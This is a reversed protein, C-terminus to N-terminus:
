FFKWVIREDTVSNGLFDYAVIKITHRFFSLKSWNWLCPQCFTMNQLNNGLYFEVRQVSSAHSVNGLVELPGFALTTVFPLIRHNKVYLSYARPSRIEVAIPTTGVTIRQLTSYDGWGRATNHGRVRYYYTGNLQGQIHYSSESLSESLITVSGVHAVPSIDDIYFGALNKRDNTTYRFRIFLSDGVYADLPYTKHTWNMDVGNFTDLLDYSRGDRSVEVMAYDKNREISYWCWFSLTMGEVIPVPYASTLTSVDNTKNRSMYSHESSHSRSVNVSFGDSIWWGTSSEADDTWLTVNSLEDLQFVDTDALPNQEDWTITYDGDEDYNMEQFEPPLVRPVVACIGDAEELLYLAGEYNEVCIQDLKEEPPQFESCSEITYAFTAKGQVYHSNGYAWDTMDGSIGSARGASYLGTGSDRTIRSAIGQAISLLFAHDPAEESTYGWPALVVEGYNHWTISACIDNTLFMDRLAQTENESFAGLGCYVESSPTHSGGGNGVSGWAGWSDGNCSGAYDRNLDVGYTNFQPFFHRNKRWDHGQDHCYYYGDPNVCPSVWIRRGNVFETISSNSGYHSTLQQAIYLCIELTPWERAHHVGMYYVGPEGEDVGPNDSIELCWIPRGEHTTGISKLETIESYTTALNQLIQEMEALSHYSGAVSRSHEEIDAVLITYPIHGEDLEKLQSQLLLVDIWQGPTESIIEANLPLQFTNDTTPIRLLVKITSTDRITTSGV